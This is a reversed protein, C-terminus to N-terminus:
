GYTTVICFIALNSNHKRLFSPAPEVTSLVGPPLRNDIQCSWSNFQPKMLGLIDSDSPPSPLHHHRIVWDFEVLMAAHGCLSRRFDAPAEVLDLGILRDQSPAVFFELAM